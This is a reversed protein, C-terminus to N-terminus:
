LRNREQGIRRAVERGAADGAQLRGFASRLHDLAAQHEASCQRRDDSVVLSGLEGLLRGPGAFRDALQGALSADVLLGERNHEVRGQLGLRARLPYASATTLRSGDRPRLRQLRQLTYLASLRPLRKLTLPMSLMALAPEISPMPLAPEYRLM